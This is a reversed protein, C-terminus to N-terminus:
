EKNKSELAAEHAKRVQHLLEPESLLRYGAGALAKAGTVLANYGIDSNAAERFENTHAILEDPGIKIYPHATP